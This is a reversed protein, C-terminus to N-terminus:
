TTFSKTRALWWPWSCRAALTTSYMKYSLALEHAQSTPALCTEVGPDFWLRHMTVLDTVVTYIPIYYRNVTFVSLLPEQYLPFTTLILIRKPGPM